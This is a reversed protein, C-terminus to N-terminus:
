GLLDLIPFVELAKRFDLNEIGITTEEATPAGGIVLEAFRGPDRDADVARDIFRAGDTQAGPLAAFLYGPAVRRSDCTIGAIEIDTPASVSAM